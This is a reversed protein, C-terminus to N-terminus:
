AGLAVRWENVWTEDARELRKKRLNEKMVWQVDRDESRLWREMRRKGEEPCAAVAVSWCYGLGKRLVRFGETRRDTAAELSATIGDLIGLVRRAKEEEGLLGPECLGAAAARQEWVSGKSWREMAEILAELDASGYRQLAMAVAERIRWRPDRAQERLTELARRRGEALLKGQGLTGCFALFERPSDAPARDAEFALFYRFLDESGEEAVARALEINARRGPLGSEQLLYPEWDQLQRLRERYEDVKGM